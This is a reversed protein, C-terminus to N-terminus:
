RGTGVKKPEDPQVKRVKGIEAESRECAAVSLAIALLPAITKYLTADNRNSFLSM